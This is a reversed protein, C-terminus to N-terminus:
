RWRDGPKRVYHSFIYGWPLLPIIIVIPAIESFSQRTDADVQGALWLPLYFGSLWIMKWLLEYLMLPLMALPYRIGVLSMLALALLFSHVAGGSLTWHGHHLFAQIQIAGQAFGLIAFLLRLVYLRWLAIDDGARRSVASADTAASEVQAM